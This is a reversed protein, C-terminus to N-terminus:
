IKPPSPLSLIKAIFHCFVNERHNELLRSQFGWVSIWDQWRACEAGWIPTKIHLAKKIYPFMQERIGPYTRKAVNPRNPGPGAVKSACTWSSGISAQFPSLIHAALAAGEEQSQSVGRQAGTEERNWEKRNQKSVQRHQPEM